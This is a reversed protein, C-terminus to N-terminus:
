TACLAVVVKVLQWEAEKGAKCKPLHLFLFTTTDPRCTQADPGWVNILLTQRHQLDAYSLSPWLKLMKSYCKTTSQWRHGCSSVLATVANRFGCKLSKTLPWCVLVSFLTLSNPMCANLAWVYIICIHRQPNAITKCPDLLRYRSQYINDDLIFLASSPWGQHFSLNQIPNTEYRFVITWMFIYLYILRAAHKRLNHFYESPVYKHHFHILLSEIFEM